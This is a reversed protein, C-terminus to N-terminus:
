DFVICRNRGQEKAQYLAKDARSILEDIDAPKNDTLDAIGFSLSIFISNGGYTIDMSEIESRLREAIVKADEITTEPLIVAFEEGGYRAAHDSERTEMRLKTALAKIVRDGALHGFTDNIAKFHDIDCFLLSLPRKYREARALENQLLQRFHHHNYLQTMSDRIVQQKLAEMEKVQQISTNIMEVSLKSLEARASEIIQIYEDKGVELDFLPFIELIQKWIKDWIESVNIETSFGYDYVTEKLKWLSMARSNDSLLGIFLSSLYLIRTLKIVSSQASPLKDPIHHYGIPLYFTNPLDWSKTLYEGIEQHNIGLVRTEAQPYIISNKGVENLVLAYQRPMCFGLILIGIDQLLGLIFADEAHDPELKEALLKTATAGVLSTKWFRKYDILGNQNSQFTNILTFSLALNKVAKIGLLKIAHHVSTIKTPLSFFSSNVIKLIKITLPPDTTLLDGIEQINPETKQYAEIIKIAIGPLTPLNESELVLKEVREANKM